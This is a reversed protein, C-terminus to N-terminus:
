ATAKRLRPDLVLYFLDVAVNVLVFLFAVALAAGQVIPYDRQHVASVLLNGIGPYSFVTETILSGGLLSGFLLGLVTVIV